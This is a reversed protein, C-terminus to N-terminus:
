FESLLKQRKTYYEADSILGSARLTELEQLRQAVSPQPPMFAPPDAVPAVAPSPQAASQAQQAAARRVVALVQQRVGPYNRVDVTGHLPLNNARYIQLIEMLPGVQGSLDYTRNTEHDTFMAPVVGAILGSAQWHIQYKHTNPDVLVVLYRSTVVRQKTIDVMVRKGSAFDFGPGAIRLNLRVVPQHNISIGTQSLGMIQALALVGVQRLHESRNALWLAIPVDGLTIVIGAWLILRGVSSEPTLFILYQAIFFPGLIGGRLLVVLQSRIYSRLM